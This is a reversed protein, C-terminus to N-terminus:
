WVVTAFSACSPTSSRARNWIDQWRTDRCSASLTGGHGYKKFDNM